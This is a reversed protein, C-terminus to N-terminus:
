RDRSQRPEVGTIQWVGYDDGDDGAEELGQLDRMRMYYNNVETDDNRYTWESLEPKAFTAKLDIVQQKPSRGDPADEKVDVVVSIGYTVDTVSDWVLTLKILQATNTTTAGRAFTVRFKISRFIEGVPDGGVVIRFKTLGTTNIKGDTIDSNDLTTYTENYNTAYEVIVTEDTTPNDTEVLVDLATKIQNRIGMDNWPTEFQGTPAYETDPVQLPNVADVPIKMFYVTEGAGWWMRYVNYASGVEAVTISETGSASQWLTEWGRENYDIILSLGLNSNATVGHHTGVGRSPLALTSVGDASSADLLAIFGNKTGASAVIVGRKNQPLGHDQDPGIPVVITQDSGAQFKDVANGAPFMISGRWVRAGKGADPHFPSNDGSLDTPVFRANLDDHVYLGVKTAAYIHQERDPGRAVLLKVIRNDPLQLLADLSWDTSLDDTYYMQGAQTIGWLLDKFFVIYKIAQQSSRAWTATNTAYDVESGTAIALTDVGGVLGNASDTANNLLTRVSSDWNDTSNNYVHVATGFSGVIVNQFFTLSQVASAPSNSTAVALRPMIIRDKYRSQIAGTWFRDVDKAPDMIEVGQGGRIDGINWENANPNDSASAEGIIIKGPSQSAPFLRVHQSTRYALRDIVITNPEIARDQTM